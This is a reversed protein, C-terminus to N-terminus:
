DGLVESPSGDADISGDVIRIVRDCRAALSDDHTVILFSTEKETHQRRLLEFVRDSSQTDLNGTPEDALILPPANMLARAIAVRQRMGGSLERPYQDATDKLGVADLLELARPRLAADLGGKLVAAPLMVNEAVKLAPILHHFQFIFGLTQGRLRTVETDDLGTINKGELSIEGSTPRDLLGIQNLLTSKGSGSPGILAVFEGRGIRLDIGHLIEVPREEGFSKRVERLEVIAEKM